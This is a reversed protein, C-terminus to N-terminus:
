DREETFDINYKTGHSMLVGDTLHICLICTNPDAENTHGNHYWEAFATRLKDALDVNKEDLIHGLNEGVGHATFWDGCIAVNVNEKIQMMKNSRAGTIVYFAGNEYYSNVTRVSPKNGDVTALAILSDHHFRENMIEQAKKPFKESM